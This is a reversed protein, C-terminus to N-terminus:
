IGFVKFIGRGIFFDLGFVFSTLVVVTVVVVLTYTLMQRRDPWAVKKLEGRVERLFQRVGPREKKQQELAQRQRQRAVQTRDGSRQQRQMARKAQRNM